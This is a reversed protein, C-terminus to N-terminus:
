LSRNQLAKPLLVKSSTGLFYATPQFKDSFIFVVKKGSNRLLSAHSVDENSELYAFEADVEQESLQLHKIISPTADQLLVRDYSLLASKIKKLITVKDKETLM